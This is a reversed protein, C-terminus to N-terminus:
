AVWVFGPVLPEAGQKGLYMVISSMCRATRSMIRAARANVRRVAAAMRICAPVCVREFGKIRFIGKRMLIHNKRGDGHLSAQRQLVTACRYTHELFSNPNGAWALWPARQAQRCTHLSAETADQIRRM